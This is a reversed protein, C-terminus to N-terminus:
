PTEILELSRNVKIPSELRLNEKNCMVVEKM